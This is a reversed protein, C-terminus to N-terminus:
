QMLTFGFWFCVKTQFLQLFVLLWLGDLITYSFVRWADWRSEVRRNASNCNLWLVLFRAPCSIVCPRCNQEFLSWHLATAVEFLVFGPINAIKWQATTGFGSKIASVPIFPWVSVCQIRRPHSSHVCNSKMENFQLNVNSILVHM